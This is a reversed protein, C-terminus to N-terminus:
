RLAQPCMTLLSYVVNLPAHRAAVHLPLFGDENKERLSPPCHRALFQVVKWSGRKAAVHLPLWGRSDKIQLGAACGEVLCQVVDLSSARQAAVHLPLRGDNRAELLAQPHRDILLEVTAPSGNTPSSAAAAAARHLPLSGTNDRSELARPGLEALCQVIAPLANRRSAAAVHLPLCGEPNRSLLARPGGRSALLEVVGGPALPAEVAVHLPLRGRLDQVHLTDPARDVLYRVVEWPAGHLVAVHLPLSGGTTTGEYLARDWGNALLRVVELQQQQQQAVRHPQPQPQHHRDSAVAYHLPLWGDPGIRKRLIRLAAKRSSSSSSSSSSSPSSRLLIDQITRLPAEENEFAAVLRGAMVINPFEEHARERARECVRRCHFTSLFTCSAFLSSLHGRRPSGVCCRNSKVSSTPGWPRFRAFGVSENKREPECWRRIQRLVVFPVCADNTWGLEAAGKQTHSLTLQMTNPGLDHAARLSARFGTKSFLRIGHRQAITGGTSDL